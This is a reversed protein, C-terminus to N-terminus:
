REPEERRTWLYLACAQATVLLTDVVCRRFCEWRIDARLKAPDPYPIQVARM